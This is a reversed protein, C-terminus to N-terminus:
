HSSSKQPRLLADVCNGFHVTDVPKHLITDVQLARYGAIAAHDLTASIVVIPKSFNSARLARVLALGDLGPMQHDTVLLDCNEGPRQLWALAAQGDELTVVAHGRRVLITEFLVRCMLTDDVCVIRQQRPFPDASATALANGGFPSNSSQMTFNSFIV